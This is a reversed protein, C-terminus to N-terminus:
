EKFLKLCFLYEKIKKDENYEFSKFRKYDREVVTVEGYKKMLEEMRDRSLLSESNYSLFIWHTKLNKFLKEFAEEVPKGKKCFASIFCDSPIGTKGKLDPEKKVLEPIKAIMNLPFYNKSYQRENYPPDLYVIDADINLKDSLVDYNYTCSKNNPPISLTHVPIIVFQKLAKDKFNKLYCGYVAPVNSIADASVLISALLFIYNENSISPKLEELRQRVYDIKQANEETFFKRECSKHPSYNKTIYGDSTNTELESNLKQIIEKCSDNYVGLTFAQTIISSFLEVDNSIIRSGIKRFHYSVIGTGSFLDAITKENLNYGTKEQITETIWDLLQYKSGIYNLRHLKENIPLPRQLLVIIEEKKKTSYGKINKEKCLLVLKERSLNAYESM